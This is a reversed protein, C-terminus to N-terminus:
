QQIMHNGKGVEIIKGDPTLWCDEMIERTIFNM